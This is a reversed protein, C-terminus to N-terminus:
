KVITTVLAKIGLALSFSIMNHMTVWRYPKPALMGSFNMM